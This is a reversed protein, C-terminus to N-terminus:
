LVKELTNLLVVPEWAAPDSYDGKGPKNLAVTSSQKFHLYHYSFYLCAQFLPQLYELLPKGM